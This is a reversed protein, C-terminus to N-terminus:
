PAPAVEVLAFVSPAVEAGAAIAVNCTAKASIGLLSAFVNTSLTQDVANNWATGVARCVGGPLQDPDGIGYITGATLRLSVAEGGSLEVVLTGTDRDFHTATGVIRTIAASELRSTEESTDDTAM